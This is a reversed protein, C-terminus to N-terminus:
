IKVDFGERGNVVVQEVRTQKKRKRGGDGSYRNKGEEKADPKQEYWDANDSSHVEKTMRDTQKEVQQGINVQDAVPKNDENQKIITYDQSRTVAGIEMGGFAM